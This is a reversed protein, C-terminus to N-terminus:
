LAWITSPLTRTCTLTRSSCPNRHSLDEPRQVIAEMLGAWGVRSAWAWFSKWGWAGFAWYVRARDFGVLGRLGLRQRLGVVGLGMFGNEPLNDFIHDRRPVAFVLAM